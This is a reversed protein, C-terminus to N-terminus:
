RPPILRFRTLLGWIIGALTGYLHADVAVPAHIYDKLYNADYDPLQEYIVKFTLAGLILWDISMKSSLHLVICFAFLGHLVGSFGLYWDLQPSCTLLALSISVAIFLIAKPLNKNDIAAPFISPILLLGIINMLAHYIGLHVFHGTILRWIEGEYIDGRDFRLLPNMLSAFITTILLVILTIM